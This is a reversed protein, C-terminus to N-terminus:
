GTWMFPHNDAYLAALESFVDDDPCIAKEGEVAAPSDDWPYNIMVRGDHFSISLVFPNDLIWNMMAKVEKERDKILETRPMDLDVWGPFARNLDEDNANHRSDAANGDPNVSPLLHIDTTDVIRRVRPDTAYNETLYRDSFCKDIECHTPCLFHRM